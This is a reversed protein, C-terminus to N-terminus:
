LHINIRHRTIIIAHTSHLSVQPAAKLADSMTRYWIDSNSGVGIIHMLVHADKTEIVPQPYNLKPPEPEGKADAQIEAVLQEWNNLNEIHNINHKNERLQWYRNQWEQATKM